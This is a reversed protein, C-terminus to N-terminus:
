DARFMRAVRESLPEQLRWWVTIPQEAEWDEFELEGCYVFPAAKGGIKSRDRVFLHVPIGREAHHRIAEGHKSNQKTRNQSQWELRDRSLFRDGYRHQEPLNGKALTVLLFLQGGRFVFGQQWTTPVFDLGFLPPIQERMYTRGVELQDGGETAGAPLMALGEDTERFLVQHHTDPQGAQPGFWGRLLDPLANTESDPEQVTAIADDAFNARLERGDALVPTWGTPIDPHQDRPPLFLIPRGRAHSVSCVFGDAEARARDLYEALRWEVIERVLDRLAERRPEPVDFTARFAGEEYAFFARGGTGKGGTWAAIPHTELLRRLSRDDEWHSRLARRLRASRSALVRVGRTLEDIDIPGPFRDAALMAQLVLMKYSRTMPTTELAALFSSTPATRVLEAAEAPLDGMADVFGLWSGYSQRLSRPNYGEHYLETASPREGHRERFEEYFFRISETASGRRLLSRLIEIAELDYTVECGPPLDTDGRELRNLLDRVRADGPALEFLTQPKLLFTRHNGIYDIVTLQDKGEAKRLGRGFQQLWLIRSETPRLMMVTDVHPLDVGENFMDVAFVVQLEGAELAELTRARPASTTDSHVAATRVGAEAFFERMFDAHRTSCCFALTRAGAKERWQELANQARSRTAVAATLM